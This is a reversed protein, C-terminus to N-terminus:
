SRISHTDGYNSFCRPRSARYPRRSLIKRLGVVLLVILCAAAIATTGHAQLGMGWLYLELKEMVFSEM